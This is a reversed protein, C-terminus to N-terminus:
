RLIIVWLCVAVHIFMLREFAKGEGELEIGVVFLLHFLAPLGDDVEDVLVALLSPCDGSVLDCVGDGAPLGVGDDFVLDDVIELLLWAIYAVELIQFWTLLWGVM